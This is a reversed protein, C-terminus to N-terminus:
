GWVAWTLVAALCAALVVTLGGAAWVRWVADDIVDGTLPRDATGLAYAGPKELQVGLSGAM